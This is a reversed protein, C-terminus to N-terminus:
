VLGRGERMRTERLRDWWVSAGGKLRYAVFKVKRDEPLEVYEFFRDVETLWDLFGEIDLDGSFNPIDVKLKYEDDGRYNPQWQRGDRQRGHPLAIESFDAEEYSTDDFGAAPRRQNQLNPIPNIIPRASGVGEGQEEDNNGNTQGVVRM